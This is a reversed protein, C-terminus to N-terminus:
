SVRDCELLCLLWSAGMQQFIGPTPESIMNSGIVNNIDDNCVRIDDITLM